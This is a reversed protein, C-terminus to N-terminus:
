KVGFISNVGRFCAGCHISPLVYRSRGSDDIVRDIAGIHRLNWIASQVQGKKLQTAKQVEHHYTCGDQIASFVRLMTSAPRVFNIPTNKKLM